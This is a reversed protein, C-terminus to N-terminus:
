SSLSLLYLYLLVVFRTVCSSDVETQGAFNSLYSTKQEKWFESDGDFKAWPKNTKMNHLTQTIFGCERMRLDRSRMSDERVKDDYEKDTMGELRQTNITFLAVGGDPSVLWANTSALLQQYGSFAFKQM